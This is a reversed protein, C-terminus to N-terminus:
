KKQSKEYEDLLKFYCEPCLSQYVVDQMNEICVQSGEFVFKGNVMRGNLVAKLEEISHALELLRISGPFGNMRFDTRLGYCIVPVKLMVAARFLQDIQAPEFFQAEDALVCHLPSKKTEARIIEYLDDDPHSLVDVRRTAGIRSVLMDNGKTDTSPKVLLVRMGREEYNFAVQILATTKGSNMAGYRFYLKAM